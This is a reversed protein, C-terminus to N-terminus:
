RENTCGKQWKQLSTPLFRNSRKCEISHAATEAAVIRINKQPLLCPAGENM